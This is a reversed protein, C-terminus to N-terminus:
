INVKDILLHPHHNEIERLGSLEKESPLTLDEIVKVWEIFLGEQHAHRAYSVACAEFSTYVGETNFGWEHYNGNCVHGRRAHELEHNLIGSSGSSISILRHTPRQKEVLNKGMELISCLSVRALNISIENEKHDYYASAPINHIHMFRVLPAKEISNKKSYISCYHTLIYAAAFLLNSIDLDTHTAKEVKSASEIEEKTLLQPNAQKIQKLM